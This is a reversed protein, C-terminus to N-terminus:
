RTVDSGADIRLLRLRTDLLRPYYWYFGSLFSFGAVSLLRLLTFHRPDDVFGIVQVVVNLAMAAIILKANGAFADRTRQAVHLVAQQIAPDAPMSASRLAASVQRHDSISRGAMTPRLSAYRHAAILAAVLGLVLAGAFIGIWWRSDNWHPAPGTPYDGLMLTPVSGLMLLLTYVPWQMQWSRLALWFGM